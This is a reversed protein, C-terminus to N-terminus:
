LRVKCAGSWGRHQISNAVAKEVEFLKNSRSSAYFIYDDGNRTCPLWRYGPPDNKVICTAKQGGRKGAMNRGYEELGKYKVLRQELIFEGTNSALVSDGYAECKIKSTSEFFACGGSALIASFAVPFLFYKPSTKM